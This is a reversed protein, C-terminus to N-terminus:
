DANKQTKGTIAASAPDSGGRLHCSHLFINQTNQWKHAEIETLYGRARRFYFFSEFQPDRAM